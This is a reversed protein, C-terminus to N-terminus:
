LVFSRARAKLLILSLQQCLTSFAAPPMTDQWLKMVEVTGRDMMGGVTFVLPTFPIGNRPLRRIKDNAKSDLFKAILAYCREAPDEPTLNPHIRTNVSDRTSLSVVTVDYEHRAIGSTPNGTVRIDNRRATGGILPEVVVAVGQIKSLASAIARKVQEHRATSWSQRHVCVEAHGVELTQLGCQNCVVGPGSILTKIHLGTSVQFDTLRLQAHFPVVSLWKKGLGTASELVTKIQQDTLTLFLQRRTEEFAKNCRERQRVIIPQGDESFEQCTEPSPGLLPELLQDAVDRAAGYAFPACSEYSLLGLGGLRVPLSYLIDATKSQSQTLNDTNAGRILNATDWISRDLRRWLDELGDGLLCRQLHRLEQQLCQRLLLLSHQHPLGSLRAMKEELKGIKGELFGRRAETPGVCAGLIQMGSTKMEELSVIATKATNLQLSVADTSLF